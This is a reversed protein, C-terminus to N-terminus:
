CTKGSTRTDNEKRIQKREIQKRKSPYRRERLQKIRENLNNQSKICPVGTHEILGCNPCKGNGDRTAFTNIEGNKVIAM